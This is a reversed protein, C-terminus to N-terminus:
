KKHFTIRSKSKKFYQINIIYDAVLLKLEERDKLKLIDVIFKYNVTDFGITNNKYLKNLTKIVESYLFFLSSYKKELMIIPELKNKLVINNKLSNKFYSLFNTEFNDLSYNFNELVMNEGHSEFHEFCINQFEVFDDIYEKGQSLLRNIFESSEEKITAIFKFKIGIIKSNKSESKKIKEYTLTLHSYQNIDAVVKLIVNKEFDYYRLYKQDEIKLFYKMEEISFHLEKNSYNKLLLLFVPLSHKEKFLVIENISLFKFFNNIQFSKFFEASLIILIDESIQYSSIIPFAGQIVESFKNECRYKIKKKSFKDLFKFPDDPIDNIKVILSSHRCARSQEILISIFKKELSTFRKEIFIDLNKIDSRQSFNEVRKNMILNGM